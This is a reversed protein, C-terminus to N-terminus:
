DGVFEIQHDNAYREALTGTKGHIVLHNCNSFADEGVSNLTDPLYIDKMSVCGYFAKEGIHTLGDPLWPKKLLACGIFAENGISKIEDPLFVKQIKECNAFLRDPIETVTKPFHITELHLCGDFAGNGIHEVTDPIYIDRLSKCNRFCEYGIAKLGNHLHIQGLSTCNLFEREGMSKVRIDPPYVLSKCDMFTCGTLCYGEFGGRIVKLNTCGMFIRSQFSGYDWDADDIVKGDFGVYEITSRVSSDEIPNIHAKDALFSIRISQITDQLGGCLVPFRCRKEGYFDKDVTVRIDIRKLKTAEIYGVEDQRFLGNLETVPVGDIEEPLTLGSLHYPEFGSGLLTGANIVIGDHCQSYTITKEEDIWSNFQKNFLYKM